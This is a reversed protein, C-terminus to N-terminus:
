PTPIRVMSRDLADGGDDTFGARQYLRIALANDRRVRLRMTTGARDARGCLETLVATAVGHGRAEPLVLLDVIRTESGSVATALLGIPEGNVEIITANVDPAANILGARWARHQQALLPERLPEPVAAALQEHRADSLQRLM